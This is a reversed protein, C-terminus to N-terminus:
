AVSCRAVAVDVADLWGVVVICLYTVAAGV